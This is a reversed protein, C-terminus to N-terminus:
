LWFIFIKFVKKVDRNKKFYIHAYGINRGTDQYKPMKIEKIIGCKDFMEKIQDQTTDYPIGSIFVCKIKPSTTNSDEVEKENEKEKENENLDQVEKNENENFDLSEM